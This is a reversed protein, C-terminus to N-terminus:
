RGGRWNEVELLQEKANSGWVAPLGLFTSGRGSSHAMPKLVWSACIARKVCSKTKFYRSFHKIPYCKYESKKKEIKRFIM